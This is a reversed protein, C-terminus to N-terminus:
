EVATDVTHWRLLVGRIRGDLHAGEAEPVAEEAALARDGSVKDALTEKFRARPMLRRVRTRATRVWAIPPMTM